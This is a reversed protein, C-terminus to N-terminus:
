NEGHKTVTWYVNNTLITTSNTEIRFGISTVNSISWSRSDYGIIQPSYLADTFPTVFVVDYSYPSGTFSSFAVVGSKTKLVVTSTNIEKIEGSTSRTLIRDSTSGSSPSNPIFLHHASDASLKVVGNGDSLVLSQTTTSPLTTNAGIITNSSGTVGFGSSKGIIVNDDTLINYGASAGIITNSSGTVNLFSVNTGILTSFNVSTANYGANAGFAVNNSSTGSIKYLSYNGFSSNSTGITLLGQSETGFASNNTGTTNTYLARYGFANLTSGTTSNRLAQYGVATLNSINTSLRLADFGIAVNAAGSTSTFLASSGLSVNSNGNVNNYGARFGVNVNSSGGTLFYATEYGVNVNNSGSVNSFMSQYGIATNSSGSSVTFMTNPGIAVNGIGTTNGYGAYRGLGVNYNGTTNLQLSGFGVGTNYSGTTNSRVSSTGLATNQLGVTNLYLSRYGISTNDVVLSNQQSAVGVATNTSGTVNLYLSNVGIAVNDDGTLKFRLSNVGIATNSSGTTNEILSNTGIGTNLSSQNDRLANYGFATNSSSTGSNTLTNQGFATNTSIGGAGRNYVYGNLDVVLSKNGSSTYVNLLDTTTGIPNITVSTASITTASLGNMRYTGNLTKSNVWLDYGNYGSYVLLDGYTAGTALVNHLEDLEYGNQPKVYLQGNGNNARQIVGVFVLHSPAYQKTKTFQGPVDSLWLIDGATYSGLNLGDLTGQTIVYGLGNVAISEAVIGLTKSSTTDGTNSARKISIKDGSAGFIYVVEGKNLTTTDVNKVYAYVSEGIKQTVNGGVMGVQPVGFDINWGIQGTTVTGTYSTDFQITKASLSDTFNTPGYVTGGSLPLYDGGLSPLGYYTTASITTASISPTYLTGSMTDGTKSVRDWGIPLISNTSTGSAYLIVDSTNLALEGLLIQGPSPINNPVNSRKLLFRNQRTAM